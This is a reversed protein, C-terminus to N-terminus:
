FQPRIIAFTAFAFAATKGSGTQSLGLLDVGTLALPITKAQIPSPKEFGLKQIGTLLEESLGLDNFNTDM